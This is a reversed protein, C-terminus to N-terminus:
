DNPAAQLMNSLFVGGKSVILEGRRLGSAVEYKGDTQMGISITRHVFLRRDTTVWVTMSGDSERVAGDVPIAVVKQRAGIFHATGYMGARLKQSINALTIRVKVTRTVPDIVDGVASIRGDFQEAPYADCQLVTRTDPRILALQNEPVDAIAIVTGTPTEQLPKPDLGAARLTSEKQALTARAQRFDTQADLLEKDAVAKEAALDKLRKLNKTSRELAAIGTVLDSYLQSLDQSEFLYIKSNELESGVVSVAIHAPASFESRVSEERVTDLTFQKLQPSNWPFSIETGGELIEPQLNSTAADTTEGDSRNCSQISLAAISFLLVLSVSKTM